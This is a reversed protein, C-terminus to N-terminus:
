ILKEITSQWSYHERFALAEKEFKVADIKYDVIAKALASPAQEHCECLLSSYGNYIYSVSTRVGSTSSFAIVPLGCTTAELLVQGFSEYRSTMLYVDAAKYYLDIDNTFPRLTVRSVLGASEIQKKLKELEPGSGVILVHYEDSLYKLSDIAIDFQKIESLRGVCLLYNKGDQLDLERRINKKNELDVQFFRESSVGPNLIVPKCLGISASRSQRIMDNSFVYVNSSALAFFQGFTNILYSFVRKSFLYRRNIKEQFCYVSPVLYSVKKVGCARLALVPWHSRSVIFDANSINLNKIVKRLDKIFKIFGLRDYPYDCRIVTVGDVFDRWELVSNNVNDRNSTIITVDYGKTKLVVSFEKLSNEVGGVNPYYLSSFLFARKKM